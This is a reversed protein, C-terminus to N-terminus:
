PTCVRSPCCPQFHIQLGAPPHTSRGSPSICLSYATSSASCILNSPTVDDKFLLRIKCIDIRPIRPLNSNYETNVVRLNLIKIKTHIRNEPLHVRKSIRLFRLFSIADCLCAYSTAHTFTHTRLSADFFSSWVLNILIMTQVTSITIFM